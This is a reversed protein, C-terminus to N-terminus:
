GCRRCAAHGVNNNYRPVGASRSCVGPCTGPRTALYNRRAIAASYSYYSAVPWANPYVQSTSVGYCYCQYPPYRLHVRQQLVYYTRSQVLILYRSATGDDSAAPRSAPGAMAPLTLTAGGWLIFLILVLRGAIGAPRRRANSYRM